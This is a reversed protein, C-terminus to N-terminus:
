RKKSAQVDRAVRQGRVNQACSLVERPMSSENSPQLPWACSSPYRSVWTCGNGRHCWAPGMTWADRHHIDRVRKTNKPPLGLPSVINAVGGPVVPEVSAVWARECRNSRRTRHVTLTTLTNPQIHSCITNQAYGERCSTVDLVFRVEHTVGAGTGLVFVCVCVNVCTCACM